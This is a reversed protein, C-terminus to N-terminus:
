RCRAVDDVDDAESDRAAVDAAEDVDDAVQAVAPEDDGDVVDVAASAAVVPPAPAPQASKTVVPVSAQKPTVLWDIGEDAVAAVALDAPKWVDGSTLVRVGIAAGTTPKALVRRVEAAASPHLLDVLNVGALAEAPRGLVALFEPSVATFWGTGDTSLTASNEALDATPQDAM